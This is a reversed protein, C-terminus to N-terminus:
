YRDLHLFNPVFLGNDMLDIHAVTPVRAVPKWADHGDTTRKFSWGKELLTQQATVPMILLLPQSFTTTFCLYPTVHFIVIEVLYTTFSAQYIAVTLLPV